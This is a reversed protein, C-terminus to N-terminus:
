FHASSPRRWPLRQEAVAQPETGQMVAKFPVLADSLEGVGDILSLRRALDADFVGGNRIARVMDPDLRRGRSVAEDFHEQTKDVIGQLYAKQEDTLKTGPFATTKIASTTIPIVQLGIREMLESSDIVVMYNGISGIWSGRSAFITGAQSAIWYAASACLGDIYAITPKARQLRQLADAAEVTGRVEGGPSEVIVLAAAVDDAAALADFTMALEATSTGFSGNVPEVLGYRTLIGSISVVAVRGTRKTAPKQRKVPAYARAKAAVASIALTDSCCYIPTV